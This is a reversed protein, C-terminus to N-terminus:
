IKKEKKPKSYSHVFFLAFLFLLTATYWVLLSSVMHNYGKCHNTYAYIGSSMLTVFQIMQMMTLYSKWWIPLSKGTKRDKTHMCIFYYSYMVTHIFANLMIFLFIDGDYFLNLQLWCILLVSFHHYVHLFTLQKWKQAMIIFATDWFDWIKCIYFLWMLNAVKPDEKDYDNCAFSYSNRYAVMFAEISCYSCLFIQSVNYFFKLTYPDVAPANVKKLILSASITVVVYGFAILIVTDFDALPWDNTFGGFRREPDFLELVQDGLNRM